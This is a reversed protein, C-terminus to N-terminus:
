DASQGSKLESRIQSSALDYRFESEPVEDCLARLAPPLDLNKLGRFDGSLLRGFVLFRCGCKAISMIAADRRAADGGYYRLDGVREITDAGVAFTCGPTRTAKEVFTAARSLLVRRSKLGALRNTIEIFDLPLKDVNAISLEWTVPMGCRQAAMAAIRQHGEHVPNFAGAFMVTKEREDHDAIKWTAPALNELDAVIGQHAGLLLETWEPPADIKRHQLKENRRLSDVNGIEREIGCAIAAGRLVLQTAIVEEEARTREDKILEVSYVATAQASQWAVHIRHAGRKPRNTSLSATTGIGRLARPDADSFARAREFAAMAMARATRESCAQDPTGRLWDRLAAASYPVVAALVSSSAGPTQLLSSIAGSGGGTVALVM